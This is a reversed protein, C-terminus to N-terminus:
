ELGTAWDNLAHNDLKAQVSRWLPELEPWSLISQVVVQKQQM